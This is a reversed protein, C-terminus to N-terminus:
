FGTASKDRQIGQPIRFLSINQKIFVNAIKKPSNQTSHSHFLNILIVISIRKYLILTFNRTLNPYDNTSDSDSDPDSDTWISHSCPVIVLARCEL